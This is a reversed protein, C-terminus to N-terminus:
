LLTGAATTTNPMAAQATALATSATSSASNAVSITGALKYQISSADASNTIGVTTQLAEIADNANAHQTAHPVSPSNLSDNATPNTLTDLATPYSTPM